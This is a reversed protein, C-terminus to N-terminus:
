SQPSGFGPPRPRRRMIRLAEAPDRSPSDIGDWRASCYTRGTFCCSAPYAAPVLTAIGRVDCRPFTTCTPGSLQVRGMCSVLSWFGQSGSDLPNFDQRDDLHPCTRSPHPYPADLNHNKRLASHSSSTRPSLHHVLKKLRGTLLRRRVLVLRLVGIEELISAAKFRQRPPALVLCAM